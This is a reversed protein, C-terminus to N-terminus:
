VCIDYWRSGIVGPQHVVSTLLVRYSLSRAETCCSTDSSSCMHFSCTVMMLMYVRSKDGSKTPEGLSQQRDALAQAAKKYRALMINALNLYDGPAAEEDGKAVGELTASASMLFAMQM